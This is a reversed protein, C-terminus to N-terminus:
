FRYVRMKMGGFTQKKNDTKERISIIEDLKLVAELLLSSLKNCFVKAYSGIWFFYRYLKILYKCKIIRRCASIWLHQKFAQYMDCNASRSVHAYKLQALLKNYIIFCSGIIVRRSMDDLQDCINIDIKQWRYQSSELQAKQFNFVWLYIFFKRGSLISRILLQSSFWLYSSMFFDDLKIKVTKLRKRAADPDKWYVRLRRVVSVLAITKHM